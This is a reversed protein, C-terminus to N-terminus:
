SGEFLGATPHPAINGGLQKRWCIFPSTPSSVFRREVPVSQTEKTVANEQKDSSHANGDASLSSTATM